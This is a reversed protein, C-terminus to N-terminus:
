RRAAPWQAAATSPAARSEHSNKPLTAWFFNIFEGVLTGNSAFCGWVAGQYPLKLESRAIGNVGGIKWERWM